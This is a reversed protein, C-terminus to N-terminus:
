MKKIAVLLFMILETPYYKISLQLNNMNVLRNTQQFEMFNISAM